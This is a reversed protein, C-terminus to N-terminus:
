FWSWVVVGQPIGPSAMQLACLSLDPSPNTTLGYLGSPRQTAKVFPGTRHSRPTWDESGFFHTSAGAVHRGRSLPAKGLGALARRADPERGLAPAIGFIEEVLPQRAAKSRGSLAASEVVVVAAQILSGAETRGPSPSKRIGARLAPEM